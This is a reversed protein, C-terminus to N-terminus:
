KSQNNGNTNTNENPKQPPTGGEFGEPLNDPDFGEPPNGGGFGKGDTNGDGGFGRGGPSGQGGGFGNKGFMSDEIETVEEGNVTVTGGSLAAEGDFDFAFQATINIIGGNIYLNGNSDIADTDGSAMEVTLNGGNIEITAQYSSSKNSANIGDDEGHLNIDGGNIQVYTGEFCERATIDITGSDVMLVTTAQIGDADVDININGGSIYIFGTTDDDSDESHIGDKQSKITFSGDCIRVSDNAEIADEVSDINYTGGTFKVDDKGSIGNATSSITLTGTGNLTLDDKSFIVADTNADGDSTFTGTVKLTNDGTTTVFVKDASKVYIAPSDTNTISIGDLVLQVKASDADVIISADTASGQIVYVGEADINVDVGDELTIYTAESLDAEQELDRDSFMNSADPLTSSSSNVVSLNTASNEDSKVEVNEGLEANESVASDSSVVETGTDTSATGNCGSMVMAASLFIIALFENRKKM